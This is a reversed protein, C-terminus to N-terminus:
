VFLLRQSSRRHVTYTRGSDDWGDGILSLYEAPGVIDLAVHQLVLDDISGCLDGFVPGPEGLSAPKSETPAASGTGLSLALCGPSLYKKGAPWYARTYTMGDLGPTKWHPGVFHSSSSWQFVSFQIALLEGACM